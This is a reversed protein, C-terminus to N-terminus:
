LIVALPFPQEAVVTSLTGSPEFKGRVSCSVSCSECKVVFSDGALALLAGAGGGGGNGGGAMVPGPHCSM